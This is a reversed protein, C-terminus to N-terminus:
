SIGESRLLVSHSHCKFIYNISAGTFSLSHFFLSLSFIFSKCDGTATTTTMTSHPVSSHRSLSSVFIALEQTGEPQSLPFLSSHSLLVLTHQVPKQAAFAKTLQQQQSITFILYSFFEFFLQALFPCLHVHRRHQSNQAQPQAHRTLHVADDVSQDHLGRRTGDSAGAGEDLAVFHVDEEAYGERLRGDVAQSKSLGNRRLRPMPHTHSERAVCGYGRHKPKISEYRDM